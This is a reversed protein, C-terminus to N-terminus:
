LIDVLLNSTLRFNIHPLSMFGAWQYYSNTTHVHVYRVQGQIYRRWDSFWPPHLESRSELWSLGHVSMTLLSFSSFYLLVLVSLFGLRLMLVLVVVVLLVSARRGQVRNVISTWMFHWCLCRGSFSWVYFPYRAAKELVNESERGKWWRNSEKPDLTTHIRVDDPMLTINDIRTQRDKMKM